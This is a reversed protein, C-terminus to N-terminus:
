MHFGGVGLPGYNQGPAQWRGEQPAGGGAVANSGRYLRTDVAKHGWVVKM